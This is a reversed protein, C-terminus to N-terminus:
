PSEEPVPRPAPDPEDGQRPTSWRPRAAWSWGPPPEGWARYARQAAGSVPAAVADAGPGAGADATPPARRAELVLGGQELRVDRVGAPASRLLEAPSWTPGPPDPVAESLWGGLVDAPLGDHEVVLADARTGDGASRLPIRLPSPEAMGSTRDPEQLLPRIREAFGARGYRERVLALTREVRARYAAPDAAYRAVLAQAEGPAAYDLLDGFTPRHKPDAITLVGSAAAELLTRGFAEHADPNDLYVYFDLDALFPRVDETTSPLVRWERPQEPPVGGDGAGARLAAVTQEGGLMRVEHGPGFAYGRELTAWSTPFKIRDDRSHRGVVVTGGAGPARDPPRVAWADADILGPNDWGTLPVTPDQERLVRRITPSQPVWTVPAGFLERTRQTVDAVVYRQDSGDPEVPGQNAVVLVQRVRAVRALRPPYQLIPPYRVLLVDIDVDDDPLVWSVAGSRVLEVFPAALPQDQASMFRLAELHMVGVRLGGDLAARIEEMMSRQPGGFKRWDGAVVLDLRRPGPQLLPHTPRSWRRPEPVRRPAEPDLYAREAGASVAEHWPTYLAKYLQRAPHRYGNAFEEASLTAAGGRLITTTEEVDKVPPGGAAELRRAFETDAGKRTPDFFGIRSLVPRLRFCVTAASAFRPQYGPRTLVLDPSVRVGQARTALLRPDALLPRLCTELTQPHWWDDSDVVIAFDGRAQRLATNRARYTGGNVAKRIVRVRPDLAEVQALLAAHEPGSADDVVLLELDSWTQALVSRVATLLPPGPRYSSMLVTVLGTGRAPASEQVELRDLDPASGDAPPRFPALAGSGLAAGFARAWEAGRGAATPDLRPHLADARVSSAVGPRVRRDAVLAVAGQPDGGLVRLQALMEVHERRLAGWTAPGSAQLQELLGRAVAVDEPDGTQVALVRAHDAVGAPDAGPPPGAEPPRGAWAALDAPTHGPWAVEALVERAHVSRTRLATAALARARRRAIRAHDAAVGQTTSRHPSM